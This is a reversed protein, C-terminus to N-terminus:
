TEIDNIDIVKTNDDTDIDMFFWYFDDANECLEHISCTDRMQNIFTYLNEIGVYQSSEKGNFYSLRVPILNPSDQDDQQRWKKDRKEKLTKKKGCLKVMLGVTNGILEPINIRALDEHALKKVAYRWLNKKPSKKEKKDLWLM